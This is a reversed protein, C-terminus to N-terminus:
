EEAASSLDDDGNYSLQFLLYWFSIALVFCVSRCGFAVPCRGAVTGSM